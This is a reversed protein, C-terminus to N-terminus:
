KWTQAYERWWETWFKEEERGQQEDQKAENRDNTNKSNPNMTTELQLAQSKPSPAQAILKENVRKLKRTGPFL